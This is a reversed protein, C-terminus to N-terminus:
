LIKERESTRAIDSGDTYKTKSKVKGGIGVVILTDNESVDFFDYIALHLDVKYKISKSCCQGCRNKWKM